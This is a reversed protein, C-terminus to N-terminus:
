PRKSVIKSSGPISIQKSRLEEINEEAISRLGFTDIFSNVKSWDISRGRASIFRSLRTANFCTIREPPRFSLRAGIIAEPILVQVRMGWREKFTLFRALMRSEYGLFTQFFEVVLPYGSRHRLYIHGVPYSRGLYEGVYFDYDPRREAVDALVDCCKELLHITIGPAILDLDKSALARKTYVSMAQSGFLIVGNADSHSLVSMTRGYTEIWIRAPSRATRM